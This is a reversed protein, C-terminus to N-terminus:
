IRTRMGGLPVKPTSCPTSLFTGFYMTKSTHLGAAHTGTLAQRVVSHDGPDVALQPVQVAGQLRVAGQLDQAEVVRFGLRHTDPRPLSPPM